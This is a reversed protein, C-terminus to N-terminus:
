SSGGGGQAGGVVRGLEAWFRAARRVDATERRYRREDHVCYAVLVAFTGALFLAMAPLFGM